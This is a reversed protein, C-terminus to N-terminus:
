QCITLDSYWKLSDGTKDLLLILFSKNDQIKGVASICMGPKLDPYSYNWDQVKFANWNNSFAITYVNGQKDASKVTGFVCLSRGIHRQQVDNWRICGQSLLPNDFMADTPFYRPPSTRSKGRTATPYVTSIPGIAKNSSIAHSPAAIRTPESSIPPTASALNDIILLIIGVGLLIASTKGLHQFITFTPISDRAMMWANGLMLLLAVSFLALGSRSMLGPVPRGTLAWLAFLLAWLGELYGYICGKPGKVIVPM